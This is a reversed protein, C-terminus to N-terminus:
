TGPATRLAKGLRVTVRHFWHQEQGMKSYLSSIHTSPLKGKSAEEQAWVPRPPLRGM